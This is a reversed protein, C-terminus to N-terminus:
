SGKTIVDFAAKAREVDRDRNKDPHCLMSLKKYQKRVREMDLKLQSQNSSDIDVIRDMDLVGEFPDLLLVEFPNLNAYTSGPRLLREIQVSSTYVSDRAEVAKVQAMFENLLVEEKKDMKNM